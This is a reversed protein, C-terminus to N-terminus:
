HGWRALGISLKQPVELILDVLILHGSIRLRLSKSLSRTRCPSRSSQKRSAQWSSQLETHQMHAGQGVCYIVSAAHQKRKYRIHSMGGMYLGM